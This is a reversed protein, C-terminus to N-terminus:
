RMCFTLGVHFDMEIRIDLGLVTYGTFWGRQREVFWIIWIIGM